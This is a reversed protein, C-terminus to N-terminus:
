CRFDLQMWLSGITARLIDIINEDL